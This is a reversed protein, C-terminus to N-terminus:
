QQILTGSVTATVFSTDRIETTINTFSATLKGNSVTLRASDGAAGTSVYTGGAHLVWITCDAPNPKPLTGNDLKYVGNASPHSYFVISISDAINNTSALVGSLYTGSTTDYTTSVGTYTVGKFVWQSSDSLTNNNSSTNNKSCSQIIISVIAIIFISPLKKM